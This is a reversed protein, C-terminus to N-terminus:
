GFVVKLSALKLTADLAPLNASEKKFKPSSIIKGAGIPSFIFTKFFFAPLEGSECVKSIFTELIIGGFSSITVNLLVFYCDDAKLPLTRL